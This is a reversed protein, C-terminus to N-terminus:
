QHRMSSVEITLARRRQERRIDDPTVGKAVALRKVLEAEHADVVQHEAIIHEGVVRRRIREFM